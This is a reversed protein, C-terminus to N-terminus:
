HTDDLVSQGYTISGGVVLDVGPDDFVQDSLKFGVLMCISQAEMELVQQARHM